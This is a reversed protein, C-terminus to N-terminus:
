MQREKVNRATKYHSRFIHSYPKETRQSMKALHEVELEQSVMLLNFHAFNFNQLIPRKSDSNMGTTHM